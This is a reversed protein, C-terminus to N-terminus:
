LRKRAAAAKEQGSDQEISLSTKTWEILILRGILKYLVHLISSPHYDSQEETIQSLKLTAFMNAHKWIRPESGNVIINSFTIVLLELVKYIGLTTYFNM